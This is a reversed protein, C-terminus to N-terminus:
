EYQQVGKNVSKEIAPYVLTWGSVGPCIGRRALNRNPFSPNKARALFDLAQASAYM